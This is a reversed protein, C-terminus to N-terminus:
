LIGHRRAKLLADQRSCAQLKEYIRRVHTHVTHLSM